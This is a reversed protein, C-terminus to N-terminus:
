DLGVWYAVTDQTNASPTIPTPLSTNGTGNLAARYTAATLGANVTAGAGALGNGRALAPGTTGNVCFAVWYNGAPAVYPTVLATSFFGATGGTEWAASQDTSTGRLTGTFDYLGVFCQGSTLVSGLTNIQYLLNTITKPYRLVVKVLHLVGSTSLATSNSAVAPDYSWSILGQDGSQQTSAPVQVGNVTFLDTNALELHNYSNSSSNPWLNFMVPSVAGLNNINATTSSQFTGGIVTTAIVGGAINLGINNAECYCNILTTAHAATGLNIGTGAGSEVDTHILTTSHTNTISVGASTATDNSPVFRTDLVTNSHSGGEILIGTSGTGGYVVRCSRIENYHCTSANMVLPALPSVGSAGGNDILLREFVSSSFQSMDIATGAHTASTQSIRLDRVFVRINGSGALATTVVTGDYTLQSGWGDGVVQTGTVTATLGTGLRYVGHPIYVTGGNAASATLAAQIAESDDTTGNGTAGFSKVNLWDPTGGGAQGGSIQTQNGAADITSLGQGDPSFLQIYGQRTPTPVADKALEVGGSQYTNGYQDVEWVTAGTQGSDVTFPNPM